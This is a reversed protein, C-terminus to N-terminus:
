FSLCLDCIEQNRKLHRVLVPDPWLQSGLVGDQDLVHATLVQTLLQDVKEQRDLHM